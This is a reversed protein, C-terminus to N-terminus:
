PENKKSGMTGGGATSLNASKTPWKSPNPGIEPTLAIRQQKVAASDAALAQTIYEIAKTIETTLSPHDASVNRHGSIGVRLRIPILDYTCPSGGHEPQDAPTAASKLTPLSM